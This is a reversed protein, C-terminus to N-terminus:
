SVAAVGEFLDPVGRGLPPGAYPELAGDVWRAVTATPFREEFALIMPLPLTAKWHLGVIHKLM